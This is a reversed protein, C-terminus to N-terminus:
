FTVSIKEEILKKQFDIYPKSINLTVCNESFDYIINWLKYQQLKLVPFFLTVINYVASGAVSQYYSKNTLNFYNLTEIIIDM